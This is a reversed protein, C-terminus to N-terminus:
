EPLIAHILDRLEELNFPKRLLQTMDNESANTRNPDYGTMLAFPVDVELELLRRRLEHGTMNPMVIDSIVLDFSPADQAGIIKLADVGDSAVLVQYGDHQLMDHVLERVDREDEVVLITISANRKRNVKTTNPSHPTPLEAMGEGPQLFLSFTTGVGIESFVDMAGHCRQLIWVITSLGLGTGDSAKKTTFFPEFIQAMVSESMGCGEDRVTVRIYEGRHIKGLHVKADEAILVKEFKFFIRGSHDLADRANIALNVLIQQFAAPDIFVTEAGPEIEFELQISEGLLPALIGEAESIAAAIEVNSNSMPTRRGFSLLRATMESARRTAERIRELHRKTTETKQLSIQALQAHGDISLLINNFDHAVGGALQGIAQMKQSQILTQELRQREILEKELEKNRKELEESAMAMRKSHRRSLREENSKLHLNMLMDDVGPPFDHLRLDFNKLQQLDQIWPLCLLLIIEGVPQDIVFLEGRLKFGPVSLVELVTLQKEHKRLVSFDTVDNPRIFRIQSEMPEGPLLKPAIERLRPGIRLIEGSSSVAM